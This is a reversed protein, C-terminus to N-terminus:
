PLLFQDRGPARRGRGQGALLACQGAARGAGRCPPLQSRAARRPLQAPLVPRPAAGVALGRRRLDVALQQAAHRRTQRRGVRVLRRAPQRPQRPKRPVLRAGRLYPQAGPRDDGEPGACPGQGAPPRFRGGHRVASRCRPLRRHRLRLRGDALHLVALDLDCGRGARRRLRAKRHHGASRRRWRRQQRPLQASLDPLDGRRAVLPHPDNGRRADM